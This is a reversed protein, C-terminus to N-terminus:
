VFNKFIFIIYQFTTYMLRPYSQLKFNFSKVQPKVKAFVAGFVSWNKIINSGDKVKFPFPNTQM